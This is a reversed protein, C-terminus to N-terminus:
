QLHQDIALRHKNAVCYLTTSSCLTALESIRLLPFMLTANTYKAIYTYTNQPCKHPIKPETRPSVSPTHFSYLTPPLPYIAGILSLLFAYPASTPFSFYLFCYSIRPTHPFAIINRHVNLINFPHPSSQNPEPCPCTVPQQSYPLSGDPEM